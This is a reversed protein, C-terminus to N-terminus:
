AARVAQLAPDHVASSVASSRSFGAPQRAADRSLVPAPTRPVSTSPPADSSHVFGTPQAAADRGLAPAPIRPASSSPPAASSHVFGTPQAAADRGLAPAPIRPAPTSPQADSSHVFSYHTAIKGPGMRVMNEPTNKLNRGSPMHLRQTILGSAPIPYRGTYASCRIGRSVGYPFGRRMFRATADERKLESSLSPLQDWYETKSFAFGASVSTPEPPTSQPVPRPQLDTALRPGREGRPLTQAPAVRRLTAVKM